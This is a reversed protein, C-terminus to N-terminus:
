SSSVRLPMMIVVEVGGGDRNRIDFQHNDDYLQQLRAATNALGIGTSGKMQWDDPLGAGDDYVTLRLKGDHVGSRIGVVGAATSRAIGHRLANETLPQLILNPVLARSTAPDIDIEFRLRDSFRMHQIGLYLKIFNLEERLEVEQRSSHELTHRLLDSLGVLMSVAAQNKNDRVLGVIGNLTNFLFHPHLQMRLSDLQAQALQTELRTALIERERYKRYYDLAYCIGIVAGYVLLDSGFSGQVRSLFRPWFSQPSEGMSEFPDITLTIATAAASHVMSILVFAPLHIFLHKKWQGGVLSFRRALWVMAPTLPAWALWTLIGWAFVRWAPHGMREARVELYIPSAYILGLVAWIAIIAAAWKLRSKRM